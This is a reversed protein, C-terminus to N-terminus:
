FLTKNRPVSLSGRDILSTSSFVINGPNIKIPIDGILLHVSCYAMHNYGWDITAIPYARIIVTNDFSVLSVDRPIKFGMLSLWAFFQIAFFESPAILATVRDEQLLKCLNPVAAAFQSEAPKAAIEESEPHSNVFRIIRGKMEEFLKEPSNWEPHIGSLHPWWLPGSVDTQVIKIAPYNKSAIDALLEARKVSWGVPASEEQAYPIGILRYGLDALPRLAAHAAAVNDVLVSYLETNPPIGEHSIHEIGVNLIDCWIVPKKFEGFMALWPAPATDQSAAEFNGVLITGQYREGFTAVLHKVHILGAPSFPGNEESDTGCLVFRMHHREIEETLTLAFTNFRHHRLLTNWNKFSPCLVVIVRANDSLVLSPREFIAVNSRAPGVIWKKGKKHVLCEKLLGTFIQALTRRSVKLRTVLYESKPMPQGTKIKGDIIEQRFMQVLQKFRDSKFQNAEDSSGNGPDAIVRTKRGACCSVIGKKALEQIAKVVTQEGVSFKEALASISPLEQQSSECIYAHIKQSVTVHLLIKEKM